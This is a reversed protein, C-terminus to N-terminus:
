RAGGLDSTAADHAREASHMAANRDFATGDVAPRDLDAWLVEYFWTGTYNRSVYLTADARWACVGDLTRRWGNARVYDYSPM